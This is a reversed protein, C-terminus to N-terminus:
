ILNSHINEENEELPIIDYPTPAYRKNEETRDYSHKHHSQTTQLCVDKKNQITQLCGPMM